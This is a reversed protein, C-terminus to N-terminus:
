QAKFSNVSLEIGSNIAEYLQRSLDEYESNEIPDQFVLDNWSGMGGFVWSQCAAMYIQRAALGYGIQPLWDKEDILSVPDNSELSELGRRFCGAFGAQDHRIAFAEIRTLAAKVNSKCAELDGSQGDYESENVGIRAYTVKWIRHDPADKDAVEWRGIWYATQKPFDSFIYTTGGGGVFAVSLHDALGANQTAQHGLWLRRCGNEKLYQFWKNPNRAIDVMTLPNRKTLAAFVVEKCYQFVSNGPYFGGADYGGALYANGHAALAILQALSGVM